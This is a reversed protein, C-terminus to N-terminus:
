APITPTREELAERFEDTMVGKRLGDYDYMVMTSSM